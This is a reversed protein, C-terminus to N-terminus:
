QELFELMLDIPSGIPWTIGGDVRISPWVKDADAYTITVVGDDTEKVGCAYSRQALWICLKVALEGNEKSKFRYPINNIQM